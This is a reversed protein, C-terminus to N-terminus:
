EQSIAIPKGNVVLDGYVLVQNMSRSIRIGLNNAVFIDIDGNKRMKVTSKTQLEVIGEEGDDFRNITGIVDSLFGDVDFDKYDMLDHSYKAEDNNDEDLWQQCMPKIEAPEEVSMLSEDVLSTGQDTCVRQNYMSGNIGTIVPSHINGGYFTINCEAGVSLATATVGGSEMVVPVSERIIYGEGQPNNFKIKAKNMVRDYELITGSTGFCNQRSQENSVKKLQDKIIGM